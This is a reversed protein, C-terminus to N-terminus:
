KLECMGGGCASEEVMNTNDKNELLDEYNVIKYERKLDIYYKWTDVDKLCYTLKKIDGNLYKDAYKKAKNILEQKAKSNNKKNIGLIADCADFLSDDYLEKAKEIIGSAFLAADGYMTALESPLFVETFPSQPYDKDGSAALLSIGCFFQRNKYIFKIVDDWEDDKVTITNSVNHQLWNQTCLSETKGGAVWNQQTLMVAELMEIASIQNKLKAGDQVEICFAIVDTTNNSCWVSRECASPNIRKFHQYVEELVNAQVRRIYRKAHHPHIGSSTGLVCSTTGEPKCCTARAAPNIKLLKAIKVNTRKVIEAGLRQTEADLCIEPCEMIGTMSVGLLAEKKFIDESVKGLYDFDTFGAQLTGLIAADRCARFFDMKTKIKGANITSLNCGQVGSNGESDYAYFSIECCPNVGHELSDVFVFGPEGFEKVCKMINEFEESTVDSKLLVVSNNARGRQPNENRWNGTKCEIMERDDKSFLSILASRRVGGSVVADSFHCIIDHCQLPTLKTGSTVAKDLILRINEIAQKLPEPGPAKAYCSSLLTGKPSVLSYDFEIDYGSYEPFTSVALEFYSNVVVGIADAWGEISDQVVFTKTGLTPRVINPLKAVHHKQVSYGFGCGCMLGYMVEQFFRPRDCYSFLCNYIRLNKKLTAKGGFQLGRQSGLVKKRKISKRIRNIQKSLDIDKYKELFMDCYRDVSESWNERRKKDPIWQAYKSTFVYEQLAKVSM